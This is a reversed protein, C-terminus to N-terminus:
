GKIFGIVLNVTRGQMGAAAAPSRNERLYVSDAQTYVRVM